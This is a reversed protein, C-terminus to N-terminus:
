ASITGGLSGAGPPAKAAVLVDLRACLRRLDTAAAEAEARTRGYATSRSVPDYAHFGGSVAFVRTNYPTEM